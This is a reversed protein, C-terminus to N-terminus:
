KATPDKTAASLKLQMIEEKLANIEELYRKSESYASSQMELLAKEQRVEAQQLAVDCSRKMETIQSEYDNRQADLKQRHQHAAEALQEQVNALVAQMQDRESKIAALESLATKNADADQVLTAIAANSTTVKDELSAILKDKDALQADFQARKAEFAKADDELVIIKDNLESKDIELNSTQADLLKVKQQLEIITNDKSKLQTEFQSAIRLEADNALALSYAYTELIAKLHVEFNSVETERGSANLSKMEYFNILTDLLDAQSGFDKALEKFTEFTSERARVSRTILLDTQSGYEEQEEAM